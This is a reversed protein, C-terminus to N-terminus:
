KADSKVKELERKIELAQERTKPNDYMRELANVRQKRTRHKKFFESLVPVGMASKLVNKPAAPSGTYEYPSMHRSTMRSRFENPDVGTPVSRAYDDIKKKLFEENSFKLEDLLRHMEVRDKQTFPTGDTVYKNFARILQAKITQNPTISAFDRDTFRGEGQVRLLGRILGADGAAIGSLLNARSIRDSNQFEIIGKHAKEFNQAYKEVSDTGGASPKPTGIGSEIVTSATTGSGAVPGLLRMAALESGTLKSQQGTVKNINDLFEQEIQAQNKPQKYGAALKGGTLMDSFQMLPSLDLGPSQSDRVVQAQKLQDQVMRDQEAMQRAYAQLLEYNGGLMMAQEPTMMSPAKEILQKKKTASLESGKPAGKSIEAFEEAVSLAPDRYPALSDPGPTYVVSAPVKKKKSDKGSSPSMLLQWDAM